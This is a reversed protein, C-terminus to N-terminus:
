QKSIISEHLSSQFYMRYLLLVTAAGLYSGAIVDSLYHQNLIIRSLAILAGALFFVPKFRPFLISLTLAASIATAAHGSPFSIWAHEHRLFDFGYIGQQLFLKPRARGFIVKLLDATIGSVAVSSFLFLWSKAAWPKSKRYVLYFLMGPLLYWQSEGLSTILRFLGSFVSEKYKQFFLSVPIDFLLFGAIGFVTAILTWFIYSRHNHM